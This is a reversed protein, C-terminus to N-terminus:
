NTQPPMMQQIVKEFADMGANLDSLAYVEIHSFPAFPFGAMVEALEEHSSVNVIGGGGNLGAFNWIQEMKGSELHAHSWQRMAGILVPAM